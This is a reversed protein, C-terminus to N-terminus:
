LDGVDRITQPVVSVHTENRKEKRSKQGTWCKAIKVKGSERAIGNPTPTVFNTNGRGQMTARRDTM